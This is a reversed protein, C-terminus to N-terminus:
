FDFVGATWNSLEHKIKEIDEGDYKRLIIINIFREISSNHQTEFLNLIIPIDKYNFCDQLLTFFNEHNFRVVKNDAKVEFWEINNKNIQKNVVRFVDKIILFAGLTEPGNLIAEYKTSVFADKIKSKIETLDEIDDCEAKEDEDCTTEKNNNEILNIPEQKNEITDYKPFECFISKGFNRISYKNKEAVMSALKKRCDLITPVFIEEPNDQENKLSDSINQFCPTLEKYIKAALKVGDHDRIKNGEADEFGLIKRSRDLLLIYNNLGQSLTYRCIDSEDIFVKQEDFNARLKEFFDDNLRLKTNIANINGIKTSSSNNQSYNNTVHNNTISPKMEKLLNIQESKSNVEAELNNIRAEYMIKLKEIDNLKIQLQSKLNEIENTKYEIENTKYNLQNKLRENEEQIQGYNEEVGKLLKEKCNELHRLLSSKATFNKNCFNCSEKIETDSSVKNEDIEKQLKLCFKATKQHVNLNYKASYEKNCFECKFSM